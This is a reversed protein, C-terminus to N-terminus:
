GPHDARNFAAMAAAQKAKREAPSMKVRMSVSWRHGFPDVLQGYREGWFQNDLPMTPKAGAAVARQWFRDVDKTYIHLTVTSTGLTTPAATSAGPFVDSFMVISDGIRLRGHVIKGDPTAERALERAGFAKAYFEFAASGGELSLYPTVTGFGPPVPALAGPRRKAKKAPPRKAM